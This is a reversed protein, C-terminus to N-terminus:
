SGAEVLTDIERQIIVSWEGGMGAEVMTPSPEKLCRLVAAAENVHEPWEADVDLPPAQIPVKPM